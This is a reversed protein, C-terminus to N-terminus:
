YRHWTKGRFGIKLSTRQERCCGGGVERGHPYRLQTSAERKWVARHGSADCGRRPGFVTGSLNVGATFRSKVAVSSPFLDCMGLARTPFDLSAPVVTLGTAADVHMQTEEVAVQM